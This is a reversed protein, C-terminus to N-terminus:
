PLAKVSAWAQIIATTCQILGFVILLFFGAAAIWFTYWREGKRNDFWWQSFSKPESEDFAEKLITLRDRWYKFNEIRRDQTTLPGCKAALPDLHNELQAKAFWKQVEPDLEPFLLALTRHTEEILGPDLLSDPSNMQAKLFAAHYFINVVTDDDRMKLHDILNSTWCIEIGAIRELNVANFLRPLKIDVAEFKTDFKANIYERINCRSDPTWPLETGPMSYGKMPGIKLMCLLRAGLVMCTETEESTSNPFLAAYEANFTETAIKDKKLIAIAKMLHEYSDDYVKLACCQCLRMCWQSFYAELGEGIHRNGNSFLDVSFIRSAITKREDTSISKSSLRWDTTPLM